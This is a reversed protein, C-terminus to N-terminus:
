CSICRAHMYKAHLAGDQCWGVHTSLSWGSTLRQQVLHMLGPGSVWCEAYFGVRFGLVRSGIRSWTKVCRRYQAELDEAQKVVGVKEQESLERAQM